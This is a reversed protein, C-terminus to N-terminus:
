KQINANKNRFCSNFIFDIVFAITPASIASVGIYLFIRYHTQSNDDSVSRSLGIFEFFM